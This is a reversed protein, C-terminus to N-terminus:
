EAAAAENVDNQIRAENTPHRDVRRVWTRRQRCPGWLRSNYRRGGQHTSWRTTKPQLSSGTDDYVFSRGWRNKASMFPFCKKPFSSPGFKAGHLWDDHEAGQTSREYRRGSGGDIKSTNCLRATLESRPARGFRHPSPEGPPETILIGEDALFPDVGKDVFVLYTTGEFMAM